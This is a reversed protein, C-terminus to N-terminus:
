YVVQIDTGPYYEKGDQQVGMLEAAFMALNLGYGLALLPSIPSPITYRYPPVYTQVVQPPTLYPLTTGGSVVWSQYDGTEAGGVIMPTGGHAPKSTPPAPTFAPKGIVPAILAAVM